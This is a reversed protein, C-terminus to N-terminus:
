RERAFDSRAGFRVVGRLRELTGSGLGDVRGLDALSRFPGHRVRELVIAEARTFGIGPLVCLEHVGARNVDVVYPVVTVAPPMLPGLLADAFAAILLGFVLLAWAALLM